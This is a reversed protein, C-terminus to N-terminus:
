PIRIESYNITKTEQTKNRYIRVGDRECRISSYVKRDPGSCLFTTTMAIGEPFVVGLKADGLCFGMAGTECEAASTVPYTRECLRGDGHSMECLEHSTPVPAQPATLAPPPPQQCGLLLALVMARM